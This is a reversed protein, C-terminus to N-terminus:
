NLSASGTSRDDYSLYSTSSRFYSRIARALVTRLWHKPVAPEVPLWCPADVTVECIEHGNVALTCVKM